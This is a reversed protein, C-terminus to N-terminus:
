SIVIAIFDILPKFAIVELPTFTGANLNAFIDPDLLEFDFPFPFDTFFNQFVCSSYQRNPCSM